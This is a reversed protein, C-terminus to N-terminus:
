KVVHFSAVRYGALESGAGEVECIFRTRVQAGFGNQADVYSGLLYRQPGITHVNTGHGFPYDATAPARLKATMTDECLVVTATHAESEARRAQAEPSDICAVVVLLSGIPMLLSRWM